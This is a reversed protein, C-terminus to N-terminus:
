DKSAVSSNCVRSELAETIAMIVGHRNSSIEESSLVNIYRVHLEGPVETWSSTASREDEEFEFPGLDDESCTAATAKRM